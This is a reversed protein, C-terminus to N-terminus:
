ALKLKTDFVDLIQMWKEKSDLELKIPERCYIEIVWKADGEKWSQVGTFESLKFMVYLVNNIYLRFCSFESKSTVTFMNTDM